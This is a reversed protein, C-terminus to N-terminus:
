SKSNNPNSTQQYKFLKPPKVPKLELTTVITTNTTTTSHTLKEM